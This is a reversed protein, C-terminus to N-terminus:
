PKAEKSRQQRSRSIVSVPPFRYADVKGSAPLFGLHYETQRTNVPILVLRQTLLDAELIGARVTAVRFEPAALLKQAYRKAALTVQPDRPDFPVYLDSRFLVSSQRSIAERLVKGREDFDDPLRVIVRRPTPGPLAGIRERAAPDNSFASWPMSHMEGDVWLLAYPRNQWALATGWTLASFQIVAIVAFDRRLDRLAKTPSAAVLTLLPGLVIDVGAIVRFASWGGDTEFLHAPFWRTLLVHFLVGLIALSIGLHVGFAYWRFHRSRQGDPTTM